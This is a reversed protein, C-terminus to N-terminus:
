KTAGVYPGVNHGGREAAVAVVKAIGLVQVVVAANDVASKKDWVYRASQSQLSPDPPRALM